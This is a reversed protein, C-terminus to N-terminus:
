DDVDSNDANVVMMSAISSENTNIMQASAYDTTGAGDPGYTYIDLTTQWKNLSRRTLGHM